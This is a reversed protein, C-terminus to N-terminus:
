KWDSITRDVNLYIKGKQMCIDESARIMQKKISYAAPM